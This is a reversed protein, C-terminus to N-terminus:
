FYDKWREDDQGVEDMFDKYKNTWQEAEVTKRDLDTTNSSANQRAKQELYEKNEDYTIKHDIEAHDIDYKKCLAYLHM